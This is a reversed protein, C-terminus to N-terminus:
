TMPATCKVTRPGTWPLLKMVSFLWWHNGLRMEIRWGLLVQTCSNDNKGENHLHLSKESVEFTVADCSRHCCICGTLNNTKFSLMTNHSCRTGMQSLEEMIILSLGCLELNSILKKKKLWPAARTDPKCTPSVSFTSCIEWNICTCCAM